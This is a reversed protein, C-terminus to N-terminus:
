WEVGIINSQKLTTNMLNIIESKPLQGNGSGIIPVYIKSFLNLNMEAFTNLWELSDRVTQYDAMGQWSLWPKEENLPKSPLMILKYEEFYYRAYGEQCKCGYEFPLNPFQEAAEKAIGRGMVNCSDKKWGINTPVVIPHGLKHYVWINGNKWEM